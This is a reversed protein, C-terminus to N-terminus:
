QAVSNILERDDANFSHWRGATVSFNQLQIEVAFHDPLEQLIQNATNGFEQCVESKAYVSAPTDLYIGDDPDDVLGIVWTRVVDCHRIQITRGPIGVTFIKHLLYRADEVTPIYSPDVVSESGVLFPLSLGTRGRKEWEELLSQWTVTKQPM